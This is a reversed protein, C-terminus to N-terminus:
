YAWPEDTVFLVKETTITQSNRDFMNFRRVVSSEEAKNKSKSKDNFDGELM